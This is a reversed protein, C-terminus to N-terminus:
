EDGGAAKTRKAFSDAYEFIRDATKASVNSLDGHKLYANINGPNLGLGTYIKYNAMDPCNKLGHACVQM